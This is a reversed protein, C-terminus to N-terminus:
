KHKGLDKSEVAIRARRRRESAAKKDLRKKRQEETEETLKKSKAAAKKQLRDKRQEESELARQKSKAAAEKQLREKRQEESEHARQKSKALAKRRRKADSREQESQRKAGSNPAADNKCKRELSAWEEAQEDEVIEFPEEVLIYPPLGSKYHGHALTSIGDELVFRKDDYPCLSNKTIKVTSLQHAESKISTWTAKIQPAKSFLADKYDQHSISKKVFSKGIGKAKKINTGDGVLVSYMKSKLGVFEKVPVGATEDKMKGLVQKNKTSYCPHSPDYNSTDFRDLERRMDEYFDDTQIEYFLSDTDTFLLRAYNGYKPRMFEYHFEYMTLKSLELITFGTYTPLDCMVNRVRLNSQVLNDNLIKFSDAHPLTSYKVAKKVDKCLKVSIRNSKNELTKGFVSNNKLKFFDKEFVTTANQRKETNFDIYPKLWQSQKFRLIRRINILVLGHKLYFQLTRYHVVYGRKPLLNTTLKTTSTIKNWAMRKMFPSVLDPTINLQEPALPYDNHEDHLSCPYDLDVELIYGIESDKKVSFIDFKLIEKKKLWRFKGQPLYGTMALGYLNNIDLDVLYLSPLCPNFTEPIYKNNAVSYRKGIFTIGGRIGASIFNHKGAHLFLELKAKTMKLAAAWSYGPTSVYYCPDIGDNTLCTKRFTQFIDALLYVDMMQYVLHYTEFTKVKLISWVSKAHEYEEETLEKDNLKSYFAERPPLETEKFVDISQVYEYPYHGKQTLLDVIAQKNTQPSEPGLSGLDLRQHVHFLDSQNIASAAIDFSRDKKHNKALTDLSSSVFNFSDLFKMKIVFKKRGIKFKEEFALSMFRETNRAIVNLNQSFTGAASVLLHSDYGELNHFVIPITTIARAKLNCSDHAAGRYQGTFHCHDRGKRNNKTFKENCYICRDAARFQEQEDPSLVLPKPQSLIQLFYRMEMRMAEYFVKVADVGLYFNQNVIENNPGIVVYGFSIPAHINTATTSSVLPDATATQVPKLMCEFDAYIIWPYPNCREFYQFSLFNDGPKFFTLVQAKNIRVCKSTHESMLREKGFAAFCNRCYFKRHTGTGQYRLLRDIDMIACYHTNEANDTILLLDVIQGRHNKNVRLPHLGRQEYTCALINISLNNAREFSDIQTMTVPFNLMSTDLTNFHTEYFKPDTEYSNLKIALISYIFCKQDDTNVVNVIADSKKWLQPPLPLYSSPRFPDIKAIKLVMCHVGVIIWGSGREVFADISQKIKNYADSIVTPVENFNYVPTFFSLFYSRISSDGRVFDIALCLQIKCNILQDLCTLILLELPHFLLTFATLPDRLGLERVYERHTENHALKCKMAPGEINFENEFICCEPRLDRNHHSDLHNLLLHRSPFVESCYSCTFDTKPNM